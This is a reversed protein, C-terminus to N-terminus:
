RIVCVFSAAGGCLPERIEPVLGCQSLVRELGGYRMFSRYAEFHSGALELLCFALCAPYDLNREPQRYDVIALRPTKLLSSRLVDGAREGLRHLFFPFFILERGTQPEKELQSLTSVVVWNRIGRKACFTAVRGDLAPHFDRSDM